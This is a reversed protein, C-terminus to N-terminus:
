QTAPLEAAAVEQLWLGAEQIESVGWFFLYAFVSVEGIREANRRNDQSAADLLAKELRVQELLAASEEAHRCATGCSAM